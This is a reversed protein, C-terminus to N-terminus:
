PNVLVRFQVPSTAAAESNPFPPPTSGLMKDTFTATCLTSGVTAPNTLFFDVDYMNATAGAQVLPNGNAAFISGNEAVCHVNGGNAGDVYPVIATTQSALEDFAAVPGPTANFAAVLDVYSRTGCITAGSTASASCSYTPISANNQYSDTASPLVAATAAAVPADNKTSHVHVALSAPLSTKGASDTVVIQAGASVGSSYTGDTVDTAVNNFQGLYAAQGATLASDWFTGSNLPIDITCTRNVPLTTIPTTSGCNAAVPVQIGNPLNLTVAASLLNGSSEVSDPDTITFTLPGSDTNEDLQALASTLASDDAISPAVNALTNNGTAVNDDLKNEALDAPSFLAAMVVPAGSSPVTNVGSRLYRVVVFHYQKASAPMIPAQLSVSTAYNAYNINIDGNAPSTGGSPPPVACGQAGAPAMCWQGSATDFVSTDYGELLAFNCDLGGAGCNTTAPLPPITVDVTFAYYDTSSAPVHFVSITVSSNYVIPDFDGDFLHRTSAHLGNADGGYCVLADLPDGSFAITNGDYGIATAGAAVASQTPTASSAGFVFPLPSAAAKGFASYYTTGVVTAPNSTPASTNACLLPTSTVLSVAPAGGFSYQVAQISASPAVLSTTPEDMPVLTANGSAIAESFAVASCVLIVFRQLQM